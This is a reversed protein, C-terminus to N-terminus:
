SRRVGRVGGRDRGRRRAQKPTVVLAISRRYLGYMVLAEGERLSARIEALSAVEPYLVNAARKAERRIRNQTELLEARATALEARAAKARKFNGSALAARGREEALTLSKAAKTELM